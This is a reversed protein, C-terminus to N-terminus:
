NLPLEGFDSGTIANTFGVITTLNALAKNNNGTNSNGAVDDSISDGANNLAVALTVTQTTTIRTAEVSLTFRLQSSNEPSKEFDLNKILCNSYSKYNLVLTFFTGNNRISELLNRAKSIRDEGSNLLNDQSTNGFVNPLPQNQVIGSLTIKDNKNFINESAEGKSEIPFASVSNELKENINTVSDFIIAEVGETYPANAIITYSM